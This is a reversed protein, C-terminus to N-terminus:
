DAHHRYRGIGSDFYARRGCAFLCDIREGNRDEFGQQLMRRLASNLDGHYLLEDTLQEMVDFSDLEFGRQSGDWPSYRARKSRM